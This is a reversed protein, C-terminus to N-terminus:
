SRELEDTCAMPKQCRMLCSTKTVSTFVSAYLICWTNVHIWFIRFSTWTLVHRSLNMWKWIVFELLINCMNWKLPLKTVSEHSFILVISRAFQNWLYHNPHRLSKPRGITFPIFNITDFITFYLTVRFLKFIFLITEL